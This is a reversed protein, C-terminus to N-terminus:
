NLVSELKNIDVIKITKKDYDILGDKKMNILENSLAPRTVGFLEAMEKRSIKMTITLNRQEKYMSIIYNAVKKRITQYNINKLRDSLYLTKNSILRLFNRLFSKNEMCLNIIEERSIFMISSKSSSIITSPYDRKDSFISVDGFTDGKYIKKIIVSKGSPYTKQVELTGELVLGISSIPEGESAIVEQKDYKDIKYQMYKLIKEIEETNYIKFLLSQSLIKILRDM